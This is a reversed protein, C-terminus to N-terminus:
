CPLDPMHIVSSNGCVAFNTSSIHKMREIFVSAILWSGAILKM